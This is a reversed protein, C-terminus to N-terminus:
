CCCRNSLEMFWAVFEGNVFVDQGGMYYKGKKAPKLVVKQNKEKARRKISKLSCYNCQTLESM